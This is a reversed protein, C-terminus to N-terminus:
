EGARISSVRFWKMLEVVLVGVAMHLGHALMQSTMAVVAIVWGWGGEPYYHQRLTMLQRLDTVLRSENKPEHQQHHHHHPQQHHHRKHHRHRHHHHHPSAGHRHREDQYQNIYGFHDLDSCSGIYGLSSEVRSSSTTSTSNIHPVSMYRRMSSTRADTSSSDLSM